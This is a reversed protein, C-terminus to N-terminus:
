RITNFSSPLLGTFRLYYINSGTTWACHEMGKYLSNQLVLNEPMAFHAFTKTQLNFTRLSDEERFVIYNGCKLLNHDPHMKQYQYTRKRYVERIQSTGPTWNLLRNGNVLYLQNDLVEGWVFNQDTPLTAQIRFNEWHLSGVFLDRTGTQKNKFFGITFLSDNVTKFGDNLEYGQSRINYFNKIDYDQGGPTTGPVSSLITYAFESKGNTEKKEFGNYFIQRGIFGVDSFNNLQSSNEGRLSVMALKADVPGNDPLAILQTIGLDLNYMRIALLDKSTSVFVTSYGVELTLPKQHHRLAEQKLTVRDLRKLENVGGSRITFYVFRKTVAKVYVLSGSPFQVLMKTGGATGDTQYLRFNPTSFYLVGDLEKPSDVLFGQRYGDTTKNINPDETLLVVQASARFQCLLILGIFLLRMGLNTFIIPGGREGIRQEDSKQLSEFREDDSIGLCLAKGVAVVDKSHLYTDGKYVVQQEGPTRQDVNVIPQM